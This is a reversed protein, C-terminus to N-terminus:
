LRNTKMSFKAERIIKHVISKLNTEIEQARKIAKPNTPDICGMFELPMNKGADALPNVLVRTLENHDVM